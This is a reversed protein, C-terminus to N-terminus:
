QQGNESEEKEAIPKVNTGDFSSEEGKDGVGGCNPCVGVFEFQWIVNKYGCYDKSEGERLNFNVEVAIDDIKGCVSCRIHHHPTPNKDFRMPAGPLEIKQLLGRESLIELNRYVTGMSVRPLRRRVSEYVEDAIPHHCFNKIEELIM